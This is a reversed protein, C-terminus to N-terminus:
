CLSSIDIIKQSSGCFGVCLDGMSQLPTLSCQFREGVHCSTLGTVCTYLFIGLQEQVSVGNCSQM